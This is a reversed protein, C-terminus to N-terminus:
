LNHTKVKEPQIAVLKFPHFTIVLFSFIGRGTAPLPM